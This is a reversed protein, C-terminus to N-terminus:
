ILMWGGLIIVDEFTKDAIPKNAIQIGENM